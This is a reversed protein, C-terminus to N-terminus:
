GDGEKAERKYRGLLDNIEALPEDKDAIEEEREEAEGSALRYQHTYGRGPSRAPLRELLGMRCLKHLARKITKASMKKETERAIERATLIGWESYFADLIERQSETLSQKPNAM